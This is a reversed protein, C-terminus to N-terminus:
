AVDVTTDGYDTAPTADWRAVDAARDDAEVQRSADEWGQRFESAQQSATARTEANIAANEYAWQEKQTWEFAYHDPVLKDTSSGQQDARARDENAAWDAGPNLAAWTDAVPVETGATTIGLEAARAYWDARSAEVRANLEQDTM